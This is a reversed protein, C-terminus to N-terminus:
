GFTTYSGSCKWVAQLFKSVISWQIKKPFFIFEQIGFMMYEDLGAQMFILSFEEITLLLRYYYQIFTNGAILILLMRKPRVIPIHSGNTAGVAQPFGLGDLKKSLKAKLYNLMIIFCTNLLKCTDLVVSCVTSHGLGFLESITRYEISTSLKWFTIAVRRETSM